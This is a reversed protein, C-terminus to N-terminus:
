NYDSKTLYKKMNMTIFGENTRSSIGVTKAVACLMIFPMVLVIIHALWKLRMQLGNVDVGANLNGVSQSQNVDM